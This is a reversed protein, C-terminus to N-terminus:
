PGETVDPNELQFPDLFSFQNSGQVLDSIVKVLEVADHDIDAVIRAAVVTGCNRDDIPETVAFTDREMPLRLDTWAVIIKCFQPGPVDFRLTIGLEGPRDYQQGTIRYEAAALDKRQRELLQRIDRGNAIVGVAYERILELLLKGIAPAVAQRILFVKGGVHYAVLAFTHRDVYFQAILLGIDSATNIRQDEAGKFHKLHVTLLAHSTALKGDSSASPSPDTKATRRGSRRMIALALVKSLGIPM